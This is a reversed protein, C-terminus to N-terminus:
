SSYIESPLDFFRVRLSEGECYTKFAFVAFILEDPVHYAEKFADFLPKLMNDLDKEKVTKDKNLWEDSGLEVISYIVGTPKFSLKKNVMENRLKIRFVVQDPSLQVSVASFGTKYNKYTSKDYLKNASPPLMSLEIKLTNQSKNELYESIVQALPDRSDMITM